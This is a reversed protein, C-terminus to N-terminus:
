KWNVPTVAAYFNWTLSPLRDGLQNLSTLVTTGGPKVSDHKHGVLVRTRRTSLLSSTDM